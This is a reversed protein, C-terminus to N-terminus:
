FGKREVKDVLKRFFNSVAHGKREEDTERREKAAEEKKEEAAEKREEAAEIKEEAAEKKERARAKEQEAAEDKEDVVGPDSSQTRQVKVATKATEENKVQVIRKQTSTAPSGGLAASLTLYWTLSAGGDLFSPDFSPNSFWNYSTVADIIALNAYLVGRWGGAVSDVRGSSFYTNWEESVFQPTRTLTSFPMLPLM